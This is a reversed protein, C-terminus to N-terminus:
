SEVMKMVTPVLQLYDTYSFTLRAPIVVRKEGRGGRGERGRGGEGPLTYFPGPSAIRPVKESRRSWTVLFINMNVCIVWHRKERELM